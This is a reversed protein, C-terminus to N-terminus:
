CTGFTLILICWAFAHGVMRSLQDVGYIFRNM